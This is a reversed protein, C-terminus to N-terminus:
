MGMRRREEEAKGKDWRNGEITEEEKEERKANKRKEM